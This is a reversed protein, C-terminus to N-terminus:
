EVPLRFTSSFFASARCVVCVMVASVRSCDDFSCMHARRYIYHCGVEPAERLIADVDSFEQLTGSGAIVSVLM